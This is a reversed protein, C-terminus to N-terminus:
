YNLGSRWTSHCLESGVTIWKLLSQSSLRDNNLMHEELYRLVLNIYICIYFNCIYFNNRMKFSCNLIAPSTCPTVGNAELLYTSSNNNIALGTIYAYVTNSTTSNYLNFTTTGDAASAPVKKSPAALIHHKKQQALVDNITSM